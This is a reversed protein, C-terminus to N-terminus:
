EPEQTLFPVSVADHVRAILFERVAGSSRILRVITNLDTSRTVNGSIFEELLVRMAPDITLSKPPDSDSVTNKSM